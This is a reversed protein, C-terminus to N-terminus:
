KKKAQASLNSEKEIRSLEGNLLQGDSITLNYVFESLGAGEQTLITGDEFVVEKILFKQLFDGQSFMTEASIDKMSEKLIESNKGEDDGLESVNIKVNTLLAKQIDNFQGNSLYKFLVVKAKSEPLVLEITPREM